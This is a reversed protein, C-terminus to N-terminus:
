SFTPYSPAEFGSLATQKEYTQRTWIHWKRWLRRSFAVYLLDIFVIPFNGLGISAIMGFLAIPAIIGIGLATKQEQNRVTGMAKYARTLILMALILDLLFPIEPPINASASFSGVLLTAPFLLAGILAFKFPSWKPEGIRTSLFNGPLIRAAVILIMITFGSFLILGGGPSYPAYVRSVFAYLFISDLVLVAFTAALRGRQVLSKSKLDPFVLGFLFIPLGISYVSHFILLGMTWVWNVGMWHGYTGLVGVPSANPDFLTWVDIGEELIGYAAGLLFVSAWGKKWRIMAERVLLVGPGYLCINLVFSLFYGPLDLGTLHTSASVYEPIGPTLLLLFLVPHSKLFRVLGSPSGKPQAKPVISTFDSLHEPRARPPLM